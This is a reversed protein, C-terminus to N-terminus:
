ATLAILRPVTLHSTAGLVICGLTGTIYRGPADNDEEDSAVEFSFAALNHRDNSTYDDM